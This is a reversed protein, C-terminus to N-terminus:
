QRKRCSNRYKRNSLILFKFYKGIFKFGVSHGQLLKKVFIMLEKWVGSMLSDNGVKIKYWTSCTFCFWSPFLVISGHTQPSCVFEACATSTFINGSCKVTRSLYSNVGVTYWAISIHTRLQYLGNLVKFRKDGFRTVFYFCQLVSHKCLM